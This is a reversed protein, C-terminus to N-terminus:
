YLIYPLLPASTGPLSLYRGGLFGISGQVWHDAKFKDFSNHPRTGLSSLPQTTVDHLHWGEHFTYENHTLSGPLWLAFCSPYASSPIAPQGQTNYIIHSSFEPITCLTHDKFIAHDFAYPAPFRKRFDKPLSSINTPLVLKALDKVCSHPNFRPAALALSMLSFTHSPSILDLKQRIENRHSAPVQGSGDRQWTSNNRQNVMIKKQTLWWRKKGERLLASYCSAILMMLCCQPAEKYTCQLKNHQMKSSLQVQSDVLSEWCMWHWGLLDLLAYTWNINNSIEFSPLGTAHIWPFIIM